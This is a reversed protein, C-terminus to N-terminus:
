IVSQTMKWIVHFKSDQILQAAGPLLLAAVGSSAVTLAIKKQARLYSVIRNWLYTKGIGGYGSVFFFGLEKQLVRQVICNFAHTQGSNLSATPNNMDLLPDLPYSLEEVILRNYFKPYSDHTKSPLNYKRIDRGSQAFITAM